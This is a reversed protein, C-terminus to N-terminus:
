ASPLQLAKLDEILTGVLQALQPLTVTATDCTRLTAPNAFTTYGSQVNVDSLFQAIFLPNPNGSGDTCVVADAVVAGNFQFTPNEFNLVSGAGDGLVTDGLVTVEDTFETASDFITNAFNQFRVTGTGGDGDLIWEASGVTWTVNGGNNVDFNSGHSAIQLWGNAGTDFALWATNTDQQSGFQGVFAGGSAMRAVADAFTTTGYLAGAAALGAPTVALTTSVGAITEADTALEVLGAFTTSSGLAALNSPTLIKDTAAKALAEANTATEAIGRTTTDATPIDAVLAADDFDFEITNDTADLTLTLAASNSVLGRFQVLYDAENDFVGIGVLNANEFTYEVSETTPTCCTTPSPSCSCPSCNCSCAM